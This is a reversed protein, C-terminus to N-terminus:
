ADYQRDVVLVVIDQREARFYRAHDIREAFRDIEFDIATDIGVYGFL